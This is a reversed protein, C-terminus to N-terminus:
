WELIAMCADEYAIVDKDGADRRREVERFDGLKKPWAAELVAAPIEPAKNWKRECAAQIAVLFGKGYPMPMVVRTVYPELPVIVKPLPPPPIQRDLWYLLALSASVAMTRSGDACAYDIRM